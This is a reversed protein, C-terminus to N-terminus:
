AAVVTKMVTPQGAQQKSRRYLLVGAVIALAVCCVGLGLGLGLGLALTLYVPRPTGTNGAADVTQTSTIAPSEVVEMDTKAKLLDAFKTLTASNALKGAVDVDSDTGEFSRLTHRRAAATPCSVHLPSICM